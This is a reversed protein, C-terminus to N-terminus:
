ITENSSPLATFLPQPPLNALTQSFSLWTCWIHILSSQKLVGAAPMSLQTQHSTWFYRSAHKAKLKRGRFVLKEYLFLYRVFDLENLVGERPQKRASVCLVAKLFSRAFQHACMNFSFKTSFTCSQTKKRSCRFMIRPANICCTLLVVQRLYNWRRVQLLRHCLLFITRCLNLLMFYNSALFM